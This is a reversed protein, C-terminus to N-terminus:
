VYKLIKPTNNSSAVIRDLNNQFVINNNWLSGYLFHNEKNKLDLEIDKITM